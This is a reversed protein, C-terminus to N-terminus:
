VHLRGLLGAVVVGISCAHVRVLGRRQRVQLKACVLARLGFQSSVHDRVFEPLRLSEPLQEAGSTGGAIWALAGGGSGEGASSAGDLGDPADRPSPWALATDAVPPATAQTFWPM